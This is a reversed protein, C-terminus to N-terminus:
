GARVIMSKKLRAKRIANRWLAPYKEKTKIMAPYMFPRKPYSVTRKQFRQYIRGRFMGRRTDLPLFRGTAPDRPMESPPPLGEHRLVMRRIGREGHEHIGPVPARSMARFGIMGVAVSTGMDFTASRIMKFPASKSQGTWYKPPKGPKSPLRKGTRKSIRGKRISGYAKLRVIHGVREIPNKNIPGWNRKICSRDFYVSGRYRFTIPSPSRAPHPFQSRGIMGASYHFKALGM